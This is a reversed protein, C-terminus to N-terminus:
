HVTKRSPSLSPLLLLNLSFTEQQLPATIKKAAAQALPINHNPTSLMAQSQGLTAFFVLPM